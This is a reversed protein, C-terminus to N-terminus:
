SLPLLLFRYVITCFFPHLIPIFPLFPVSSTVSRSPISSPLRAAPQSIAPEWDHQTLGSYCSTAVAPPTSPTRPTRIQICGGLRTNHHYRSNSDMAVISNSHGAKVISPYLVYLSPRFASRKRLASGQVYMVTTDGRIVASQLLLRHVM